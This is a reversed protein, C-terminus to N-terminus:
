HRGSAEVGDHTQVFACGCKLLLRAWDRQEELSHAAVALIIAGEGLAKLVSDMANARWAGQWPAGGSPINSLCSFCAGLLPETEEDILPDDDLHELRLIRERWPAFHGDPGLAATEMASFAAPAGAARLCGAELGRGSLTSALRMYVATDPCLGLVLGASESPHHMSAM